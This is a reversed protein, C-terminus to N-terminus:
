GVFRLGEMEQRKGKRMKEGDEAKGRRSSVLLFWIQRGRPSPTSGHGAAQTGAAAPRPWRPEWWAPQRPCGSCQSWWGRPSSRGDPWHCTGWLDPSHHRWFVGLDVKLIERIFNLLIRKLGKGGSPGPLLPACGPSPGKWRLTCVATRCRGWHGSRFCSRGWWPQPPTRAPSGAWRTTRPATLHHPCHFTLIHLM